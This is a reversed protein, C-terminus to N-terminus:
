ERIYPGWHKDFTYDWMNKWENNDQLKQPYVGKYYLDKTPEILKYLTNFNGESLLMPVKNKRDNIVDLKNENIAKVIYARSADGWKYKFTNNWIVTWDLPLGQPYVDRKYVISKEM